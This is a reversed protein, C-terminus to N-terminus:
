LIETLLLSNTTLMSLSLGAKRQAESDEADADGLGAVGTQSVESTGLGVVETEELGAVGAELVDHPGSDNVATSGLEVVGVELIKEFGGTTM